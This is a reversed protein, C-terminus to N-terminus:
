RALEGLEVVLQRCGLGARARRAFARGLGDVAIASSSARRPASSPSRSSSRRCNSAARSAPLVRIARRRAFHRYADLRPAGTVLRQERAQRPEVRLDCLVPRPAHIELRLQARAFLRLSRECRAPPAGRAARRADLLLETVRPAGHFGDIRLQALEVLLAHDGFRPDALRALQEVAHSERHLLELHAAFRQELLKDRCASSRACVM